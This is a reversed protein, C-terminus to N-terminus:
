ADGGPEEDGQRARTEQSVTDQGVIGDRGADGRGRWGTVPLGFKAVLRDTFPAGVEIGGVVTGGGATGAAARGTVTGGRGDGVRAHLRALLVPRTGRWVEVRAGPPLDVKRRGDCWLVAGSTESLGGGAGIVEAALVSGPSVVMPGAFLAHACIPVMLLAEVEPWVVPGGASFAYATSGTPTAFVVGDCGWRSLPRGDVEIVLDLMRERAAKEVSAENLAWTAAIQEGNMRVTVDVTMRQEVLYEGAVVRDVAESLDEPEAEALFGIRGLNVGLLPTGAGRALEAARLLTGDGGIVLVMEAGAAAAPSVPVATAAPIRLEAAEPELIRVNVGAATLRAVVARAIRRAAERGTHAVLLMTREGSAAGGRPLLPSQSPRMGNDSGYGDGGPRHAAASRRNSNDSEPRGDGDRRQGTGPAGSGTAESV